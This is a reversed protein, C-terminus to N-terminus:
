KKFFYILKREIFKFCVYGFFLSSLVYLITSGWEGLMLHFPIKHQIIMFASLIFPHLLYTSYSADGLAVFLTIPKKLLMKELSVFGFCILFASLGSDLGRLGTLEIIDAHILYFLTFGIVIVLLSVPISISKMKQTIYFLLIGLCFEFFLNHVFNSVYPHFTHMDLLSSFILLLTLIFSVLILGRSKSFLLGLSFIFYFIFESRLTWGVNLLYVENAQVPLLFFSQLLVTEVNESSNVKEPMVIYITLAIFTFFWYLPIIRIIRKKIFLTFAGKKQHMHQTTYTMIFGSVIFFIDVGFAGGEYWFSLFSDSFMEMNKESIHSLLVFFAAIARLYQISIIM